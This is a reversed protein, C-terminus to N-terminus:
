GNTIQIYLVLIKQKYLKLTFFQNKFMYKNLLFM